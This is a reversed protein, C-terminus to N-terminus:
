CTRRENSAEEKLQKERRKRSLTKTVSGIPANLIHAIQTPTLGVSSLKLVREKQTKVDALINLLLVRVLLDLKDMFESFQEEHM